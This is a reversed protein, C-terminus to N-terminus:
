NKINLISRIRSRPRIFLRFRMWTESIHRRCKFFVSPSRLDERSLGAQVPPLKIILPIKVRKKNSGKKNLDMILDIWHKHNIESSYESQVTNRAAISLREWLGEETKLRKIADFFSSGRNDVILGNHDHIIVENIGSNEALCVPVLGCAMAEVLAIPLGEYDSLLVFVHHNLMEIQIRTSDVAGKLFVAHASKKKSIIKQVNEYEPGSGYISAFVDQMDSTLRCFAKTVDRIMKAEQVLRGSYILRLTKGPPKATAEPVPAGCPIREIRLRNPNNNRVFEELFKSVCVVVDFALNPDGKVFHTIVDQYFGDVSHIVGITPIGAKKLWKCAFFAPTSLNAIFVDPEIEKVCSLIWRVRNETYRLESGKEASFPIGMKVFSQITHCAEIEGWYIFLIHINLGIGSLDKSLRRLWVNPGSAIVGPRDYACIIVKL